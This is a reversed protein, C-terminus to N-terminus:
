KLFASFFCFGEFSDLQFCHNFVRSSSRVEGQPWSHLQGELSDLRHGSMQVHRGDLGAIKGQKPFLFVALCIVNKYM